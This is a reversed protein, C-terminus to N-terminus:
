STKAASQERESSKNDVALRWRLAAADILKIQENTVVKFHDATENAMKIMNSLNRAADDFLVKARAAREVDYQDLSVVLMRVLDMEIGDATFSRGTESHLTDIIKKTDIM